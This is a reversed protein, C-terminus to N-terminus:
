VQISKELETMENDTRSTVDVYSERLKITQQIINRLDAQIKQRKENEDRIRAKEPLNISENMEGLNIAVGDIEINYDRHISGERNIARTLINTFDDVSLNSMIEEVNEDKSLYEELTPTLQEELDITRDAEKLNMRNAYINSKEKIQKIDKQLQEGFKIKLVEPKGTERNLIARQLEEKFHNVLQTNNIKINEDQTHINKAVDVVSQITLLNTQENSNRRQPMQENGLKNKRMIYSNVARSVKEKSVIKSAQALKINLAKQLNEIRKQEKPETNTNNLVGDPQNYLDSIDNRLKIESNLQGKLLRIKGRDHGKFTQRVDRKFGKVGRSFIRGFSKATLGGAIIYSVAAAPSTFFMAMGKGTNKVTAISVNMAQTAYTRSSRRAKEYKARELNIANNINSYAKKNETIQTGSMEEQYGKKVAEIGELWNRVTKNNEGIKKVGAVIPKGVVVGAAKGAVKATATTLKAGRRIWRSAIKYTAFVEFASDMVEKLASSSKFGFINEFIDEVADMFKIGIILFVCTGIMNLINTEKIIQSVIGALFVTYILAHVSQILITFAIEKLWRGLSQSRNDRIKDLAYSIAVLPSLIILIFVSLLRKIYKWAYKIMYWVLAMYLITGYWGETFNVNYAMDLVSQYFNGMEANEIIKTFIGIFFDNVWLVILIFYHIFLVMFFSIFWDVLMRKYQAKEEAINTIAIRIGLYILVILLAAIVFNRFAYYWGAVNERLTLIINDANGTNSESTLEVGGAENMNFLNVDFIPVQNLVIKELTLPGESEQKSVVEVAQSIWTQVTNTIGIFPIRLIGTILGIIYDVVDGFFDIIKEFINTRSTGLSGIPNAIGSYYLFGTTEVGMVSTFEGDWTSIVGNPWRIIKPKEPTWNPDLKEPKIRSVTGYRQVTSGNSNATGGAARIMAPTIAQGKYRDCGVMNDIGFVYPAGNTHIIQHNGDADMGIYLMAHWHYGSGTIVDGPQLPEDDPVRNFNGRSPNFFGTGRINGGRGTEPDWIDAGTAQHLLGACLSACSVYMQKIDSADLKEEDNQYYIGSHNGSISYKHAAVNYTGYYKLTESFYARIYASLYGQQETSLGVLNDGTITSEELAYAYPSLIQVLIILTLIIIIVNRLLRM